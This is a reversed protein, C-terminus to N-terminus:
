ATVANIRINNNEAFHEYEVNNNDTKVIIFYNGSHSVPITANITGSYSGGSNLNGTHVRSGLIRDNEDPINDSSLYIKDTWSGKVTPGTGGNSVTWSVVFPQGSIANVPSSFNSVLLDPPPTLSIIVPTP